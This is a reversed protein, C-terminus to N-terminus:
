VDGFFHEARSSSAEEDHVTSAHGAHHRRLFDARHRAISPADGRGGFGHLGDLSQMMDFGVGGDGLSQVHDCTLVDVLQGYEIVALQAPDDRAAANEVQQGRAGFQGCLRCGCAPRLGRPGPSLATEPFLGSAKGLGSARPRPGAAQGHESSLAARM